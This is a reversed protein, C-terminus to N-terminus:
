KNKALAGELVTIYKLVSIPTNIYNEEANTKWYNLPKDQYEMESSDLQKPHKFKFEVTMHNCDICEGDCRDAKCIVSGKIFDNVDISIKNGDTINGANGITMCYGILLGLEAASIECPQLSKHWILLDQQYIHHWKYESENPKALISKTLKGLFLYYTTKKNPVRDTGGRFKPHILNEM